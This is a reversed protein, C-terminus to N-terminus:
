EGSQLTFQTSVRYSKFFQMDAWDSVAVLSVNGKKSRRYIIVAKSFVWPVILVDSDAPATFEEEIITEKVSERSTELVDTVGFEMDLSSAVESGSVPDSAKASLSTKLSWSITLINKIASTVTVRESTRRTSGAPVNIFTRPNNGVSYIAVAFYEDVFLDKAYPSPYDSDGIGQWLYPEIVYRDSRALLRRATFPGDPIYMLPNFDDVQELRSEIDKWNRVDPNKAAYELLYNKYEADVLDLKVKEAPNPMTNEEVVLQKDRGARITVSRNFDHGSTPLDFWGTATLAGGATFSSKNDASFPVSIMLTVAGYGKEGRPVVDRWQALCEYGTWTGKAARIGLAQITSHPEIDVPGEKDSSNRYWIGWETSSSNLKLKRDTANTITLYFTWSM